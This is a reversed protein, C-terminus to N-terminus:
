RKIIASNRLFLLRIKYKSLTHPAAFSIFQPRFLSIGCSKTAQCPPVRRIYYESRRRVAARPCAVAPAPSRRRRTLAAVPRRCVKDPPTVCHSSRTGILGLLKLAGLFVAEALSHRSGVAALNQSAAACSAAGTQGMSPALPADCISLGLSPRHFFSRRGKAAITRLRRNPPPCICSLSFVM